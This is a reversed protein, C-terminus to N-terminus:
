YILAISLCTSIAIAVNTLVHKDYGTITAEALQGTPLNTIDFNFKIPTTFNFRSNWINAATSEINFVQPNLNQSLLHQNLIQQSTIGSPLSLKWIDPDCIAIKTSAVETPNIQFPTEKTVDVHVSSNDAIGIQSFRIQLKDTPTVNIKGSTVKTDRDIIIAGHSWANTPKYSTIESISDPNVSVQIINVKDLAIKSINVKRIDTTQINSETGIANESPSAFTTEVIVPSTIVPVNLLSTSLPM